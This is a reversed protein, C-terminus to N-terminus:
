VGDDDDASRGFPASHGSGGARPTRRDVYANVLASGSFLAMVVVALPLVYKPDAVLFGICCAGSLLGLALYYHHWDFSRLQM